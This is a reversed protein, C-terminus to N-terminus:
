HGGLIIDAIRTLDDGSFFTIHVTGGKGDAVIRV